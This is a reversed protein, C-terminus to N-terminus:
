DPSWSRWRFCSGSVWARWTVLHALGLTRKVKSSPEKRQFAILANIHRDLRSIKKVIKIAIGEHKRLCQTRDIRESLHRLGQDFERMSAKLQSRIWGRAKELGSEAKEVAPTTRQAPDGSAKSRKSLVSGEEGSSSATRKRQGDGLPGAPMVGDTEPVGFRREEEQLAPLTQCGPTEAAVDAKKHTSSAVPLRDPLQAAPASELSAEVPKSLPCGSDKEYYYSLIDQLTSASLFRRVGPNPLDQLMEQPDKYISIESNVLLGALPEKAPLPKLRAGAEEQAGSAEVPGAPGVAGEGAKRRSLHGMQKRSSQPMTKRARLPKQIETGPNM